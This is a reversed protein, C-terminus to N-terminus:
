NVSSNDQFGANNLICGLKVIAYKQLNEKNVYLHKEPM